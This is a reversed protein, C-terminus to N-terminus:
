GNVIIAPTGDVEYARVLEDARKMKTNITFSNATAVFDEAKVGYKAYVKAVDDITPWASQPKRRDGGTDMISLAGKNVAD